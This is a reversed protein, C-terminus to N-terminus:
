CGSWGDVSLKRNDLNGNYLNSNDARGSDVKGSDGSRYARLFLYLRRRRDGLDTFGSVARVGYPM